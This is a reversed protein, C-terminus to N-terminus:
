AHHAEKHAPVRRLRLVEILLFAWLRTGYRPIQTLLHVLNQCTCSLVTDVWQLPIKTLITFFPRQQRHSYDQNNM